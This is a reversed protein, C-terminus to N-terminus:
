PSAYRLLRLANAVVVLTSGEHVIIAPGIGAIGLLAAPILLSVVGLSVILNQRIIGLAQRSLGVAFPLASLDDGMLAIDATELAVDTGSAGMAIGVTSAALAPADNVGDGVMAVRGYRGLLLRIAAVKEEPLLNAQYETVGVSGSIAAAVRENDGTLMVIAKIGLSKLRDLAARAAGRPEDGLGLIGLFRNGAQVLVTTKGQEELTQVQTVLEEPVSRADEAEFLKLNGIRVISGDLNAMVGRGTVSHLGDARPLDGLGMAQAKRLIAQALPHKSRSEVSAAVRLLEQAKVEDFPVVDTVEPQGRTITGTKDLAIADLAGLNELHVGGKILVGNRAAQAVSALVASPTAIALACPSSAVLMTIGRLLAQRWPLWGVLPPVTIVLVLGVLVAPVFIQTVRHAFEQMPSKQAQAEEVMQIVRALTSDRALKTVRIELANEGNVSGAFVGDGPGKDVPVSEGTIPSQDLASTGGVVKGDIPIREGPRVIVMDGRLLAGVPLEVDNGERVVRATKPTIEGLARIAHRARDMAYHELAHGLSFLFLLLAGEAWQGLMAAGVAAVVMLFDVDFRLNLASKLGHRTVDYGGAAYALIYFGIAVPRPLGFFTEGVFGLALFIGCAVSLAPGWNERLWGKPAEEEEVTYGLSEVREIIAQRSLITADYEVWMKEAAYNVSADLVGNQRGVIHEISLACDACDMDSIRITEHRYRDSVQAGAQEAWRQVQSLSVVNSDYHICLRGQGNERVVHVQGVGKRQSLQEVLRSVCRDCENDVSPLLVPIELQITSTSM